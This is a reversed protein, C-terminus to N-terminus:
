KCTMVYIFFNVSSNIICLLDGIATYYYHWGGCEVLKKDLFTWFIHDIFTPTHCLIFVCIIGVLVFSIDHQKGQKGLTHRIKKRKQLAKILIYNFYSVSILPGGGM